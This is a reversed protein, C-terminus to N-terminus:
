NESERMAVKCGENESEAMAHEDAESPTQNHQRVLRRRVAPDLHRYGTVRDRGTEKATLLAQDALYLLMDQSTIVADAPYSAWGVSITVHIEQGYVCFKRARVEKRIRQAFRAAQRPGAKPLIVCFEEGGTRAVVDSDRVSRQLIVALEKLVYDGSPHGYTDNILKFHDVDIMLLSMAQEYRVSMKFEHDLVDRFSRVNQVRTLPDITCLAQLDAKDRRLKQLLRSERRVSEELALMSLVLQDHLEKIRLQANIRAVFEAASADRGIVDDAGNNLLKARQLDSPKDALIVVPLYNPPSIERLVAPFDMHLSGVCSLDLLVLDAMDEKVAALAEPAESVNLLRWGADSLWRCQNPLGQADRSMVLIRAVYGDQIKGM